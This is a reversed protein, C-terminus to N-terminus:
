HTEISGSGPLGSQVIASFSADAALQFQYTVAHAVTGWEFAPLSQVSANDAPSQLAPAYLGGIATARHHRRAAPARHHRRAGAQAPVVALVLVAVAAPM